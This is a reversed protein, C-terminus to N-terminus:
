VAPYIVLTEYRYGCRDCEWLHRIRHPDIYETWEPIVLDAGCQACDMIARAVARTRDRGTDLEM